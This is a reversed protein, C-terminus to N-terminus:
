TIFRMSFLNADRLVFRLRVPRGALASVDARGGWTVIRDLQDGILEDADALAHGEIAAGSADQLEVRVDGAASTALNLSLRDGSFRLPVTVMEGGGYGANLSCFGDPRLTLREIYAAEQAYRRNVYVSMENEGTPVVGCAPYNARSVWHEPGPGPRIWSEMFTRHYADSHARTTMLVGDATDHWYREEVGALAAQEATIATRGPNFRAATAVYLHPARYYPTTQQIYIQEIPGGVSRMEVTEGWHLFDDSSQRCVWRKGEEGETFYRYFCVYRGEAESWFAVNQSDFGFTPHTVVPKDSLRRWHVADASAYPLLGGTVRWTGGLAKFREDAPVGPRTDIFPAFNHCVAGHDREHLIINNSTSDNLEVLGLDPKEWHIGDPSTALCTFAPAADEGVAMWGRYTMLYRDGDFLVTAYGCFRGEWPADLALAVGAPQPHHLTLRAGDLREILTDDVFLERRTGIDHISM